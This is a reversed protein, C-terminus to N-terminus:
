IEVLIENNVILQMFILQINFLFRIQLNVRYHPDRATENQKPEDIRIAVNCFKTQVILLQKNSCEIFTGRSISESNSCFRMFSHYQM